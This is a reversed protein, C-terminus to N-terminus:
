IYGCKRVCLNGESSKYIRYPKGCGYIHGERFIRDCLSKKSHPPVQKGNSKYVGHRFIKCNLQKIHTEVYAECHPCQYIYFGTSSDLKILNNM